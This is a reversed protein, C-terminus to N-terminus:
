CRHRRAPSGSAWSAGALGLLPKAALVRGLPLSAPRGALSLLRDLKRVYAAPTLRHGIRELLGNEAPAEAEAPGTGISLMDRIARQSRRDVSLLSWALYALPCCILLLALFVLPSM